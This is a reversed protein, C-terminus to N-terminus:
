SVMSSLIDSKSLSRQDNSFEEILRGKRLVLIRDALSILEELEDSIIIISSGDKALSDILEYIEDKAGVDVGRTPQDLILLKSKNILWKGFAVKQQNGGSLFAVEQNASSCKISLYDIMKYILNKIIKYNIIGHNCIEKLAVLSLNESVKGKLIIGEKKRNEPVLAIGLKVAKYPSNIIVPKGNIIVQGTAIREAGFIMKALETRGSGVVGAIGIIEGKKLEFNIDKVIGKAQTLGNITLVTEEFENERCYKKFGDFSQGLMWEILQNHTCESVDCTVVKKGDRLVTVRDAVRFIENLYHSIYIVSIGRESLDKIISFLAETENISLSSTPEDMIIVNANMAITRAILALQQKATSLTSVLENAQIEFGLSDLLKQTEVRMAHRDIVKIGMNKFKERGLFVNESVDLNDVLDLEQHIMAIGHKFADLPDKPTITEGNLIISGDYNILIGNLIKMLTSKGAGNAGIIAHVEGKKLDFNVNDLVRITNFEKIINKMQLVFNDEL